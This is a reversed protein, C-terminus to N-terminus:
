DTSSSSNSNSAGGNFFDTISDITQTGIRGGEDIAENGAKGLEDGPDDSSPNRGNDESTNTM